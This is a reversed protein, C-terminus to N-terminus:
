ATPLTLLLRLRQERTVGRPATKPATEIVLPMEPRSEAFVNSDVQRFFERHLLEIARKVESQDVLLRLALSSEGAIVRVDSLEKLAALAQAPLDPDTAIGAGVLTIAACQTRLRVQVCQQLQGTLNEYRDSSKVGFYVQNGNQAVFEPNRCLQHLSAILGDPSQGDRACIELVTLNQKLAISKVPNSCPGAETSIRTGETKPFRSNGLVIPIRQRIAPTVSEPHLIKAGGRALAGAEEYSLSKVRFGGSLVRPDCTLMGDVDKWIQIEDAAMGAGVLTATLDSGGRGLTTTAGSETSGIFGGLVVVGQEALRPIVRRMRAYSEWYLPEAQSHNGDTVIVQRADLHVSAVGAARLAAVVIESSIREGYSVIEDHLAPTLERGEEGVELMVLHLDRFQRRVANDLREAEEGRVVIGAEALHYEQLEKLQKWALYSHGRQAEASLEILRNTTNGMASVVVVPKQEIRSGVIKTLRDLAEGTGVSSGGFKMVIM